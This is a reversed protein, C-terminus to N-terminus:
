PVQRERKSDTTNNARPYFLLVLVARALYALRHSMQTEHKNSKSRQHRFSRAAREHIPKLELKPPCQRIRFTSRCPMASKNSPYSYFYPPSINASGPINAYQCYQCYLGFFTCRTSQKKKQHTVVRFLVALLAFSHSAQHDDPWTSCRCRPARLCAPLCVHEPLVELGLTDISVLSKNLHVIPPKEDCSLRALSDPRQFPRKMVTLPWFQFRCGPFFNPSLFQAVHHAVPSGSCPLDWM